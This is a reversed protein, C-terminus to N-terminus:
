TALLIARYDAITPYIYKKTSYMVIKVDYTDFPSLTSANYFEYDLFEDSTKSMNRAVDCTLPVWLSDRHNTTSGSVSTRIFVDFSTESVSAANVLVRLGKSTTEVTNIQSIYRALATGSAAATESAANSTGNILFNQGRVRPKESLDIVPSVNSNDTELHLIVETSAAGGFSATEVSTTAVVGDKGINKMTNVEQIAHSGLVYGESSTKMTSVLRTQPPQENAVLINAAQYKRSVPVRFIAESVPILVAANVPTESLTYNPTSLYGSGPNTITISSIKGGSLNVTGTATTGSAPASFTITPAVYGSGGSDVLVTNLIGSAALTGSSTANMGVNFTVTNNDVVTVTFGGVANFAATTIGRYTGTSFCNFYLKDGTTHGHQFDFKLTVVPSGSTVSMMSGYIFTNDMVAKM